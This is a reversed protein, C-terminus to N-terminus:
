GFQDLDAPMQVNFQQRISFKQFQFSFLPIKRGSDPFIRSIDIYRFTCGTAFTGLDTRDINGAFMVLAQVITFGNKFL